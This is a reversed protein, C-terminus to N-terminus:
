MESGSVFLLVFSVFLKALIAQLTATAVFQKQAWTEM